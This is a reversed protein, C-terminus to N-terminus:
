TPREPEADEDDDADPADVPWTYFVCVEGDIFAQDVLDRFDLGGDYAPEEQAYTARTVLNWKDMRVPRWRGEEILAVARREATRLDDANVWCTVFAGGAEGYATSGPEPSAEIVLRFLQDSSSRVPDIGDSYYAPLEPETM